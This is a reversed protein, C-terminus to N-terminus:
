AAVPDVVEMTASPLSAERRVDAAARAAARESADTGSRYRVLV